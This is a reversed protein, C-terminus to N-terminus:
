FHSKSKIVTGIPYLSNTVSYTFGKVVSFAGVEGKKSIAVFGVQLEKAKAPDRKVVRMVAERCAAEPSRGMRMQEIVTHTGCIRVVEEGVGSSTAAGVENDVFLGAGIVPSDGVRGHMKFAMGSTTCAGSLDGNADLAITGMTDHNASGDDFFPPASPSNLSMPKRNEINIVPKYESKKLWEKWAKEADASLKGPMFEFGNEVAFQMAGDGALIVHKTKEMLLRAVSIPHKIHQLYVVSGCNANHDMISADLTVFGDRDPYADLGVCCSSEDEASRAAQEVGDIAKGGKELVKWAAANARLGSDWTSVVLPKKYVQVASKQGVAETAALLPLGALSAKLFSRRNTM